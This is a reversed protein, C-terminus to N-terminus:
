VVSGGIASLIEQVSFMDGIGSMIGVGFGGIGSLINLIPFMDGIDSPKDPISLDLTPIMDTVPSDPTSTM